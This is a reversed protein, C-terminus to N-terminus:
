SLIWEKSPLKPLYIIKAKSTKFYIAELPIIIDDTNKDLFNEVQQKYYKQVNSDLSYIYECIFKKVYREEDKTLVNEKTLIKNKKYLPGSHHTYIEANVFLLNKLINKCSLNELYAIQEAIGRTNNQIYSHMYFENLTWDNFYYDNICFLLYKDKNNIILNAWFLLACGEGEEKLIGAPKVSKIKVDM